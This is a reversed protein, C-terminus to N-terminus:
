DRLQSDKKTETMWPWDENRNIPLAINELGWLRTRICFEVEPHEIGAQLLSQRARIEIVYETDGTPVPYSVEEQQATNYNKYVKVEFQNSQGFFPDM